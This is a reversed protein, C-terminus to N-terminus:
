RGSIYVNTEWTNWMDNPNDYNNIIEWKLSKLEKRFCDHKFKKFIRSTVYRPKRSDPIAIKGVAYVLSHDSM